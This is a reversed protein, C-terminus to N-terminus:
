AALLRALEAEFAFCLRAAEEKPLWNTIQPFVRQWFGYDKKSWPMADAARMM